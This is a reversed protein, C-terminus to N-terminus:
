PTAGKLWPHGDVLNAGNLPKPAGYHCTACIALANGEKAGGEAIPMNPPRNDHVWQRTQPMALALPLMVETNIARTMYIGNLGTWRHPSSQSWDFVQAKGDM